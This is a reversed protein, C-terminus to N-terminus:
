EKAEQVVKLRANVALIDCRENLAHGNHGKIHKMKISKHRQVEQYLKIWLDPNLLPGGNREWGRTKWGVMWGVLNGPKGNRWDGIGQQVYKSDTYVVVDCSRKLAKLSELVATMEMRNNTTNEEGGTLEREVIEGKNIFQLIAGWGGYGPNPECAGDTHIVIEAELTMAFAKPRGHPWNDRGNLGQGRYTMQTDKGKVCKCMIAPNCSSASMRTSFPKKCNPCQYYFRAM